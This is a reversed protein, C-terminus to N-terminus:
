ELAIQARIGDLRQSFGLLSAIAYVLIRILSERCTDFWESMPLVPRHRGISAIDLTM